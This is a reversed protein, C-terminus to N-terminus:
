RPAPQYPVKHRRLARQKQERRRPDNLLSPTYRLETHNLCIDECSESWNTCELAVGPQWGAFTLLAKAVGMRRVSERVYVFDVYLSDTCPARMSCVFGLLMSPDGRVCAVQCFYERLCKDIRPAMERCFVPWPVWRHNPLDASARLWSNQVFARDRDEMPRVDLPVECDPM